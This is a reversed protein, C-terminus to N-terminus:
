IIQTLIINIKNTLDHTCQERKELDVSHTDDIPCQTPMTETKVFEYKNDTNCYIKFIEM